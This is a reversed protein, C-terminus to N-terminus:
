LGGILLYKGLTEIFTVDRLLVLMLWLGACGVAILRYITGVQVPPM